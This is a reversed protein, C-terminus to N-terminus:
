SVKVEQWPLSAFPLRSLRVALDVRGFYEEPAGYEDRSILGTPVHFHRSQFWDIAQEAIAPNEVIKKQVLVVAFPEGQERILVYQFTM